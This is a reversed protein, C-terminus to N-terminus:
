RPWNWGGCAMKTSVNWPVDRGALDTAVQIALRTKGCGGAGTLTLLRVGMGGAGKGREQRLEDPSPSPPQPYSSLLQKIEAMESQRGIFSTLPTPVNTLLAEHSPAGTLEREIQERLASTEQSPEVSLEDRLKKQCEDYQKLAGIRDGTAVLCFIIHQYAKENAPDSALVKHALEIARAYQSHSRAEQALQLLADLYLARLREREPEIWDDYFDALLDGPYLEIASQLNSIASQQYSIASQQFERADVWLPHEPNLQVTDRDALLLDDGLKTRTVTPQNACM